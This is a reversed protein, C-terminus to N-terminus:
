FHYTHYSNPHPSLIRPIKSSILKDFVKKLHKLTMYTLKHVAIRDGKKM